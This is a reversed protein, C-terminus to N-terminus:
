EVEELVPYSLWRFLDCNHGSIGRIWWLYGGNGWSEGWSNKIFLFEKSYGVMVLAHMKGSSCSTKSWYYGGSKYSRLGADQANIVVALPSKRAVDTVAQYESASPYGITKIKFRKMSNRKGGYKCSKIVDRDPIDARYGLRHSNNQIYAWGHAPMGGEKKKNEHTCDILEQTSLEKLKGTKMKLQTELPGVAAHAWCVGGIQRHVQTVADRTRWDFELPASLRRPPESLVTNAQDRNVLVTVNVGYMMDMECETMHAFLTIGATWPVKRKRLSQVEELFKKFLKVRHPTEADHHELGHETQYDQYLKQLEKASADKLATDIRRDLHDDKCNASGQIGTLLLVLLALM